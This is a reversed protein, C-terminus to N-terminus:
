GAVKLIAFTDAGKLPETPDWPVERELRCCYIWAKHYQHRVLHNEFQESDSFRREKVCQASACRNCLYGKEEFARKSGDSM